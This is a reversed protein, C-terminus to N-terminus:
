SSSSPWGYLAHIGPGVVSGVRYTTVTGYGVPVAGGAADCAIRREVFGGVPRDGWVEGTPGGGPCTAHVSLVAM